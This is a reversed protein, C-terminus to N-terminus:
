HAMVTGTLTMGQGQTNQLNAVPWHRASGSGPFRGTLANLSQLLVSAPPEFSLGLTLIPGSSKVPVMEEEIYKFVNTQEYVRRGRNWIWIHWVWEQALQPCASRCWLSVCVAAAFLHLMMMMRPPTLRWETLCTKHIWIPFLHSYSRNEETCTLSDIFYKGSYPVLCCNYM